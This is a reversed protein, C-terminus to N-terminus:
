PNFNSLLINLDSEQVKQDSNLDSTYQGTPPQPVPGNPAWNSLLIDLDTEDIKGLSDCTINGLQGNPCSSAPPRGPIKIIVATYAPVDYDFTNGVSVNTETSYVGEANFGAPSEGFGPVTMKYAEGVSGNLSFGTLNIRAKISSGPHSKNILLLRINGDKDISAHSNLNEPNSSSSDVVKKGFFQSYFRYSYYAPTKLPRGQSVVISEYTGGSGSIHIHKQSYKIGAEAMIGLEDLHWFAGGWTINLRETVADLGHCNGMPNLEGIGIASNQSVSYRQMWPRMGTVIDIPYTMKQYAPGGNGNWNLISNGTINLPVTTCAYPYWHTTVVDVRLDPATNQLTRMICEGITVGPEGRVEASDLYLEPSHIVANPIIEKIARTSQPILIQGYYGCNDGPSPPENGIDWNLCHQDDGFYQRCKNKVFTVRRKIADPSTDIIKGTVGDHTELPGEGLAGFMPDCNAQSCFNIIDEVEADTIAFYDNDLMKSSQTRMVAGNPFEPLQPFMKKAEDIIPQLSLTYRSSPSLDGRTNIYGGLLQAFDNNKIVGANVNITVETQALVFKSLLPLALALLFFPLLVKSLKM